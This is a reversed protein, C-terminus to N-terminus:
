HVASGLPTGPLDPGLDDDLSSQPGPPSPPGQRFGGHGAGHGGPGWGDRNGMHNMRFTEVQKWQEPTLKGRVALLYRANAKELEARAQAVKDIQALIGTENPKDDSILPALALEAKEVNARLDILKERHALLIDDFQKKQEDTLKLMDAVKPNNWWRGHFGRGQFARELPPRHDAFGMGRGMGKGMGHGMGQGTGQGMGQGMGQGTGALPCDGPGQAWAMGAVLLAGIALGLRTTMSTNM